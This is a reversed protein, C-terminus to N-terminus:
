LKIIHLQNFIQIQIKSRRVHIQNANDFKFSEINKHNLTVENQSSKM